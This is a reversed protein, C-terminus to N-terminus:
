ITKLKPPAIMALGIFAVGLLLLAYASLAAGPEDVLGAWSAAVSGAMLLLGSLSLTGSDPVAVEGVDSDNNVVAAAVPNEEQAPEM